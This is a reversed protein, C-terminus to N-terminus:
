IIKILCSPLLAGTCLVFLPQDHPLCTPYNSMLTEYSLLFVWRFKLYYGQLRLVTNTIIHIKITNTEPEAFKAFGAEESTVFLIVSQFLKFFYITSLAIIASRMNKDGETARRTKHVSM